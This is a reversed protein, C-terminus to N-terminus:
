PRRGASSTPTGAATRCGGTSCRRPSTGRSAAGAEPPRELVHVVRLDLRTTLAELQERFLTRALESSGYIVLHPRRDGRDALTRLMSMCPVIGSGGAIFVYGDADPFADVSM